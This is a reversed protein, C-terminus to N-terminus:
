WNWNWSELLTIMMRHLILHEHHWYYKLLFTRLNISYPWILIQICIKCLRRTSIIKCITELNFNFHLFYTLMIKIHFNQKMFFSVVKPDYLCFLLLEEFKSFWMYWQNGWSTNGIVTFPYSNHISFNMSDNCINNHSFQKFNFKKHVQVKSLFEYKSDRM